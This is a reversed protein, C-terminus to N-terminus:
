EVRSIVYTLDTEMEEVREELATVKGVIKDLLDVLLNMDKSAKLQELLGTLEGVERGNV